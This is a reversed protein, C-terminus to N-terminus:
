IYNNEREPPSLAVKKFPLLKKSLPFHWFGSVAESAGDVDRVGHGVFYYLHTLLFSGLWLFLHSLEGHATQKSTLCCPRLPPFSSSTRLYLVPTLFLPPCWHLLSTRSPLHYERAAKRVHVANPYQTHTHCIGVPHNRIGSHDCRHKVMLKTTRKKKLNHIHQPLCAYVVSRLPPCLVANDTHGEERM